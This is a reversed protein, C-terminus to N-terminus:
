TTYLLTIHFKYTQQYIRFKYFIINHNITLKKKKLCFVPYPIRMLSQLESTHEESRQAHAYEHGAHQQGFREAHGAVHAHRRALGLVDAAVVETEVTHMVRSRYLTTYPFLTDTLTYRPPRPIMFFFFLVFCWIIYM